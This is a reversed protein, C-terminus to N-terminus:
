LSSGRIGLASTPRFESPHVIFGNGGDQVHEPMAGFPSTVVPTGLLFAELAWLGFVEAYPPNPYLFVAKAHRILRIKRELPVLGLWHFNPLASARARIQGVYEEDAVLLSDDGIFYCEGRYEGCFRLFHSLGKGEEARGVFVVYDGREEYPLPNFILYPEELIHGYYVGANILYESALQEAHFKSVGLVCNSSWGFKYPKLGHVVNLVVADKYLKSIAKSWSHDVIIDPKFEKIIGISKKVAEAEPNSKYPEAYEIFKINDVVDGYLVGGIAKSHKTALVMVEHGMQSLRVADTFAILELGGYHQPPTPVAQTSVILVRAM